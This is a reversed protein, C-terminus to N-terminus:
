APRDFFKPPSRLLIGHRRKAFQDGTDCVAGARGARWQVPIRVQRSKRATQDTAPQGTGAVGVSNVATEAAPMELSRRQSRGPSSVALCGTSVALFPDARCPYGVDM